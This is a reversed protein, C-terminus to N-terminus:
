RFIRKYVNLIASPIPRLEVLEIINEFEEERVSEDLSFVYVIFKKKMKIAERKFAEIGEDDYIIGLLKNQSNKFIKFYKGEKVKDFCDEKLCLMETSKDVLRKKNRDTNESDVFATKFYKLRSEIGNIKIGSSDKYGKIVKQVRPYCVEKCINNEDNTCIIYRRNGGDKENLELVAQALTGTGAFFDLVVGEKTEGTLFNIIYKLLSVPKPFDFVKKGFMKKLESSANENTGVGFSRNILNWPVEAGYDAKDYSPSLAKTRISIKTGKKLEEDLKEQKWKFKGKIIVPKTFVGKKIETDKMLEIDYDATGYKNAKVIGAKIGTDIVNPPFTLIKVANTQNMLGNTSVSNKKLGIFKNKDKKKQFCLIYEVTKKTKLSLNAPTETKTWSFIDIFNNEGFIDDCLLKLQAVENDDISIFIVGNGKLLNKALLLRKNMFTLWKSHRYSDEKEVFQDNYIFDKNGTNYPPDIYILDIKGKHTYNLVSLSHYNDGEILVNVPKSNSSSIEKSKEETLVPLKEKCLEVVKESKDEWLLGYTKKLKKDLKEVEKVLEEKGWNKYDKKAM